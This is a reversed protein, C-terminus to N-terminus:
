SGEGTEGSAEEPAATEVPSPSELTDLERALRDKSPLPKFGLQILVASGFGFHARLASGIRGRVNDAQKSLVRIRKTIVQTRARYHAQEAALALVEADLMKLEDVDKQLHPIEGSFNQFNRIVTFWRLRKEALSRKKLAM